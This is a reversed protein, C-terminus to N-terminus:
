SQEKAEGARDIGYDAARLRPAPCETIIVSETKKLRRQARNESEIFGLALVATYVCLFNDKAAIFEPVALPNKLPASPLSSRILALLLKGTM